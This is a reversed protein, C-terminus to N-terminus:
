IKNTNYYNFNLSRRDQSGLPLAITIPLKKRGLEIINIQKNVVVMFRKVFPTSKTLLKLTWLKFANAYKSYTM